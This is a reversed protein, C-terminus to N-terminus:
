VLTSLASQRVTGATLSSLWNSADGRSRILPRVGARQTSSGAIDAITM